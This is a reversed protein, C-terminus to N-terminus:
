IILLYQFTGSNCKFFVESFEKITGNFNEGYSIDGDKLEELEPCFHDLINWFTSVGGCYNLFSNFIFCYKSLRSQNVHAQNESKSRRNDWNTEKRRRKKKGKLPHYMSYVGMCVIFILGGVVVSVGLFFGPGEEAM